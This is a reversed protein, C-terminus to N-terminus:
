TMLGYAALREPIAALEAEYFDILEQTRAEKADLRAARSCLSFLVSYSWSFQLGGLGAPSAHKYEELFAAEARGVVDADVRKRAADARLRHLFEGVDKAPDGRSARDIDIVTVQEPTLFVHEAHFRGHTQVETRAAGAPVARAVLERLHRVIREELAPRRAAAQAARWALHLCHETPDDAQGLRLPSSHLAALWRAARRLGEEWTSPDGAQLERLCEGPAGGILLVGQEPLYALPEPVRYPSSAGFGEEWFTRHILYTGRAEESDLIPKAFVRQGGEFRYEVIGHRREELEVGQSGAPHGVLPCVSERIFAEQMLLGASSTDTVDSM